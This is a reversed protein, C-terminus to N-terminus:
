ASRVAHVAEAFRDLAAKLEDLSAAAPHLKLTAATRRTGTQYELLPAGAATRIVVTEAKRASAAPTRLTAAKVLKRVIEAAPLLAQRATRRESQDAALEQAAERIRAAHVPSKAMESRLTSAHVVRAARSGGLADVVIPDLEALAIYRRLNRSSVSLREAMREIDGGYHRGLADRYSKGRELDTIDARARNELDSLRFAAEDDLKQVEVLYRFEPYNNARLWSISWHRRLGTVIEYPREPDDTRRVVAPLRQRGESRISLILDECDEYTLASYDRANELSPKCLAPDIWQRKQYDVEDTMAGITETRHALAGERAQGIEAEAKEIARAAIDAGFIRRAAM